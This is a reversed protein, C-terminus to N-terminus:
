GREKAMQELRTLTDQIFATGEELDMFVARAHLKELASVAERLAKVLFPIDTRSHAIFEADENYFCATNKNINATDIFHWLLGPTYESGFFRHPVQVYCHDVVKWPGETAADARKEIETLRTKLSTM